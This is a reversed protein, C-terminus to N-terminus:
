RAAQSIGKSQNAARYIASPILSCDPLLLASFAKKKREKRLYKDRPSGLLSTVLWFCISHTKEACFAVSLSSCKQIKMRQEKEGQRKIEEETRM